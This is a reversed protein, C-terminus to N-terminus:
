HEIGSSRPPTTGAIDEITRALQVLFAQALKNENARQMDAFRDLSRVLHARHVPSMGEVLALTLGALAGEMAVQLQRLTKAQQM